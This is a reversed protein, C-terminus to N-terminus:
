INNVIFKLNDYNRLEFESQPSEFYMSFSFIFDLVNIYLRIQEM